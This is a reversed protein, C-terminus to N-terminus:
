FRIEEPSNIGNRRYFAENMEFHVERPTKWWLVLNFGLGLFRFWLSYNPPLEFMAVGLCLIHFDTPPLHWESVWSFRKRKVRKLLKMSEEGTAQWGSLGGSNRRVVPVTPGFGIVGAKSRSTSFLSTRKGRM